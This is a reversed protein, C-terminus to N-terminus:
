ALFEQTLQKLRVAHAKAAILTSKQLIEEVLCEAVAREGLSKMEEDWLHAFPQERRESYDDLAELEPTEASLLSTAARLLRGPEQYVLPTLLFVCILPCFAFILLCFCSLGGRGRAGLVWGREEDTTCGFECSEMSPQVLCQATLPLHDKHRTLRANALSGQHFGENRLKANTWCHPHNVALNSM